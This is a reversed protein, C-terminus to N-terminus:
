LGETTRVAGEPTSAQAIPAQNNVNMTLQDAAADSVPPMNLMRRAENRTILGGEVQLKLAQSLQLPDGRLKDSLDFAVFRDPWAPEGDLLQAQFTQEILALWPPLVDRYLGKNLEEINSYTGHTLDNMLPGALDFVMGVEERNLKRQQILEAEVATMSMPKWDAGPALLGVRFAKDVGKHMNEITTRTERMVEPSPNSGAPLTVVGGPRAGNRFASTQYRTAADELRITVSLKELPSVGIEGTPGTWAFHMVDATRLFREDGFQSTSWWEIPGGDSAYASIQSWDLPWLGVPPADPEAGRVKAALANGHVLLSWAISHLFHVAAARPMPRRILSDLADGRILTREDMGSRQYADFPLAAIRHALKDVVGAILPQKRYIDAFSALVRPGGDGSDEPGWWGDSDKVWGSLPSTLASASLNTPRPSLFRGDALQIATM